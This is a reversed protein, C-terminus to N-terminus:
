SYRNRYQVLRQEMQEPNNRYYRMIEIASAGDPPGGKKEPMSSGRGTSARARMRSEDVGNAEVHSPGLEGKKAKLLMYADEASIANNMSKRLELVEAKYKVFDPNKKAFEKIEAIRTKQISKQKQATHEEEQAKIKEDMSSFFADMRKAVEAQVMHAMGEPTFPDPADGEPAAVSKRSEENQLLKYMRLREEEVMSKADELSRQRADLDAQRTNYEESQTSNKRHMANLVRQVEPPLNKLDDEKPEWTDGRADFQKMWEPADKGLLDLKPESPKAEVKEPPAAEAKPAEKPTETPTETVPATPKVEPQEM